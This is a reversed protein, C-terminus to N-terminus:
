PGGKLRAVLADEDVRGWFLERGDVAIVPVQENYRARLADDDDIDVVELAFGTRGRARELVDAARECLHCGMRTYLTVSPM